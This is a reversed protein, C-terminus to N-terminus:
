IMNNQNSLLIFRNFSSLFKFIFPCILTNIVLEFLFSLSLINYPIISTYFLSIIWILFIKTFTSLLGVFAPLLFGKYNIHKGTIGALYGILTRFMCNFGFPAGSIFDIFLGSIFGTLIGFMKGNIIGLYLVAILVMDPVAPLISINSLISSEILITCIIIIISSIFSKVM